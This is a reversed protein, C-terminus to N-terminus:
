VCDDVPYGPACLPLLFFQAPLLEELMVVLVNFSFDICVRLTSAPWPHNPSASLSPPPLSLSCPTLNWLKM